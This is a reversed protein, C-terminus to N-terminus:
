GPLKKAGKRPRGADLGAAPDLAGFHERLALTTHALRERAVDNLKFLAGIYLVDVVYLQSIRGELFDGHLPIAQEGRISTAFVTEAALALASGAHNTIAITRAGRGRALGVSSVVSPTTGTHSVAILLCDAELTAAVITQTYGDSYSTADVGIKLFVHAAEECVAAAGGVGMFIVRRAETIAAVAAELSAEDLAGQTEALSSAFVTSLKRAVMGVTDTWELSSPINPYTSRGQDAAMSLKLDTFGSFGLARSVRSVTAESVGVSKALDTISQDFRRGSIKTLHSAVRQESPRLEAFKDNIRDRLDRGGASGEPLPTGSRM